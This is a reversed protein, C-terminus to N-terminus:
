DFIDESTNSSGNHVKTKTFSIAKGEKDVRWGFTYKFYDSNISQFNTCRDKGKGDITMRLNLRKIKSNRFRCTYTFNIGAKKAAAQIEDLESESTQSTITYMVPEGEPENQLPAEPTTPEPFSPAEPVVPFEPAVPAQPEVPPVPAVPHVPPTPVAAIPEPVAPPTPPTPQVVEDSDGVVVTHTTRSYFYNGDDDKTFEVTESTETKALPVDSQSSTTPLNNATVTAIIVGTTTVLGITSLMIIVKLKTSFAGWKVLLGAILGATVAPLLRKKVEKYSVEPAQSRAQEFLEDLRNKELASM